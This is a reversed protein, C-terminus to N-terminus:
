KKGHRKEKRKPKAPRYHKCLCSLSVRARIFGSNVWDGTEQFDCGMRTHWGEEHGCRCKPASM